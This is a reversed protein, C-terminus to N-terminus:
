MELLPERNHKRVCRSHQTRSPLMDQVLPCLVRDQHGLGNLIGVPDVVRMGTGLAWGFRNIRAEHRVGVDDAAEARAVVLRHLPRRRRARVEALM